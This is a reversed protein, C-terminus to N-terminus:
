FSICSKSQNLSPYVTHENLEKTTLTLSDTGKTSAKLLIDQMTLLKRM